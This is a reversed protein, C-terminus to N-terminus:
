TSKAKPYRKWSVQYYLGSIESEAKKTYVTSDQIIEIKYKQERSVKFELKTVLENNKNVWKEKQYRVWTIDYLLYQSNEVKSYTRTKM